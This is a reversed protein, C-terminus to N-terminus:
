RAPGFTYTLQGDLEGVVWEFETGELGMTEDASLRRRVYEGPTDTTGELGNFTSPTDLDVSFSRSTEGPALEGVRQNRRFDGGLYVAHFARSSANTVTVRAPRSSASWSVALVASGALVLWGPAALVLLLPSQRKTAWAATLGGAVAGVLAVVPVILVVLYAQTESSSTLLSAIGYGGAAGLVGGLGGGLFSGLCGIAVRKTDM